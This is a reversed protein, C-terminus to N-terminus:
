SLRLSKTRLRVANATVIISSTSMAVAAILPTVYGAAALPVFLLNYGIAIGFNQLAMRTSLRAAVLAEIVPWLKEGQFIADAATQTIDAATSPSLSAHGTALAPADNLGDGVMLVRRGAAKLEALRAIKEGPRQEARWTTIGAAAAAAAVPEARDGSLLEVALGMRELDAVVIRADTRLRDVMPLATVRGSVDRYYLSSTTTADEIVGCWAASGLREEAGAEGVALGLGPTERVGPAASVVVAHDKAARVIAQAYPHRSAAGLAASRALVAVDPEFGDALRIEGTTLTGTKDLVVTDVEALRELADASKVIVGRGLLRSTAAVQVAPVALALACPCTIILVAIAATLADQWIAGAILWGVFTSLALLHVAPAYMRAARDALRVYTGRGQEAAEMLRRIEAIVTAEDTARADVEIADGVNLTGAFVDAGARVHRPRTEGTILSEDVASDGRVVVGDAVIREGSAVLVRM